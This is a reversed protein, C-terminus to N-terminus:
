NCVSIGETKPIFHLTNLHFHGSFNFRRPITLKLQNFGDSNRKRPIGRTILKLIKLYFFMIQLLLYSNKIFFNHQKTELLQEVYFINLRMNDTQEYNM